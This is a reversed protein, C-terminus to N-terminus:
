PNAAQTRTDSCRSSLWQGALAQQALSRCTQVSTLCSPASVCPLWARRPSDSDGINEKDKPMHVCIRMNLSIAYVKYSNARKLAYHKAKKRAYKNDQMKVYIITHAAQAKAFEAYKKAYRGHYTQYIKAFLLMNGPM